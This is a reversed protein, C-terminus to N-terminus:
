LIRFPFSPPGPAEMKKKRRRGRLHADAGRQKKQHYPRTASSSPSIKPRPVQDERSRLAPPTVVMYPEVGIRCCSPIIRM